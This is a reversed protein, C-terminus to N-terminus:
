PAIREHTTLTFPVDNDVDAVGELRSRVTWASWDLNPFFTDTSYAAHVHTIYLFTAHPLTAEYIDRGGIVAIVRDDAAQAAMAIAAAPDPATRADGFPRYDTARTVVINARGPLARGISEHTRRGMVVPRGQTVARFFLMDHRLRWPIRGARGIGGNRDLAAVLCIQASPITARM